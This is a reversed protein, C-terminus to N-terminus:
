SQDFTIEEAAKWLDWLETEVTKLAGMRNETNKVSLPNGWTIENLIEQVVKIGNQLRTRLNLDTPARNSDVRTLCVLLTNCSYLHAIRDINLAKWSEATPAAWRFNGLNTDPNGMLQKCSADVM